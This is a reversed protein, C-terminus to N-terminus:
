VACGALGGCGAMVHSAACACACRWRRACRSGAFFGENVWVAQDWLQWNLAALSVGCAWAAAPNPNSNDLMHWASPYCRLLHRSTYQLVSALAPKALGAHV